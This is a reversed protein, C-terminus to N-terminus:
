PCMIIFEKITSSNWKSSGNKGFIKHFKEIIWSVHFSIFNFFERYGILLDEDFDKIVNIFITLIGLLNETIIKWVYKASRVM